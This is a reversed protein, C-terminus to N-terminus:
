FRFQPGINFRLNHQAGGLFYMLDGVELRLGVRGSGLEVGAGPYFAGRTMGTNNFNSFFGSVSNFNQNGFHVIGGKVTVFLRLPGNNHFNLGLLAPTIRTDPNEIGINGVGNTLSGVQRRFYYAAEAEVGVNPSPDVSFRGGVGFFNQDANNWRFYDFFAGVGVHTEQAMLAPATMLALLVILCIRRM